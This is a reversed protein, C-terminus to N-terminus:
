GLDLEAVIADSQHGALCQLHQTGQKEGRDDRHM